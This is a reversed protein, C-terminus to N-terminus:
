QSVDKHDGTEISPNVAPLSTSATAPPGNHTNSTDLTSPTTFPGNYANKANIVTSLYNSRLEKYVPEKAVEAPVPEQTSHM